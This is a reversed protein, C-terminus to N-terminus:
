DKTPLTARQWTLKANERFAFREIWGGFVDEMRDVHAAQTKVSASIQTATAILECTGIPLIVRATTDAREVPVRKAFHSCLELLYAQANATSLNSTSTIM